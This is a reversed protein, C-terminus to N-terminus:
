ASLFQKDIFNINIVCRYKQDTCTSGTHEILNDFVLLRNRVSEVDRTQGDVKIRTVGDNTNLYFVAAKSRRLGPQDIHFGPFFRAETRMQFNAKARILCAVDLARLIPEILPFFQSNVNHENYLMHQFQFDNIDDLKKNVDAITDQYFWPFRDTLLVDLAALEAPGLVNDRIEYSLGSAAVEIV